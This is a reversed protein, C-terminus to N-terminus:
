TTWWGNQWGDKSKWRHGNRWGDSSRDQWGTWGVHGQWDHKSRDDNGDAHLGKWAANDQWWGDWRTTEASTGNGKDPVASDRASCASGTSPALVTNAMADRFRQLETSPEPARDASGRAGTYEDAVASDGASGASGTSPALETVPIEMSYLFRQFELYRGAFMTELVATQQDINLMQYLRDWNGQQYFTFDGDAVASDGKADASATGKATGASGCKGGDAVASDRRIDASATGKWGHRSRCQYSGDSYYYWIEGDRVQSVEASWLGNYDPRIRVVRGDTFKVFFGWMPAKVGPPFPRGRNEMVRHRQIDYSCLCAECSIRTVGTGNRFVQREACDPLDALFQKWSWPQTAPTGDPNVRWSWDCKDIVGIDIPDTYTLDVEAVM